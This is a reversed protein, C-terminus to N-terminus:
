SKQPPKWTIAYRLGQIPYEVDLEGYIRNDADTGTSYFGAQSIRIFEEMHRVGGRGLWVDYDITEPSLESAFAVRLSFRATPYTIQQSYHELDLGRQRMEDLNLAFSHPLCKQKFRYNVTKGARLDPIFNISWFCEKTTSRLIEHIIKVGAEHHPEASVELRGEIEDPVSPTASIYEIRRVQKAFATLTVDNISESSGDASILVKSSFTDKRWGFFKGAMETLAKQTPIEPGLKEYAQRVSRYLFFIIVSVGAVFYFIAVVLLRYRIKVVGLYDAAKYPGLWALAVAVVTAVKAWAHQLNDRLVRKADDSFTPM